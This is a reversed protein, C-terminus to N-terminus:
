GPRHPSQARHLIRRVADLVDNVNIADMTPKRIVLHEDGWPGWRREGASPDTTGFLAVAPTGVAAALHVPGSDSSVIVRCAQLLGALQPLTLQGVLDAIGPKRGAQLARAQGAHEPGGIIVVPAHAAMADAVAQFRELPWQKKPNSTWPHVAVLGDGRDIGQQRLLLATERRREAFPPLNWQPDLTSL